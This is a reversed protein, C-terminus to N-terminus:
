SQEEEKLLDSFVEDHYLEHDRMRTFLERLEPDETERAIRSYEAAVKQEMKIDARLMDATKTSRDAETHEIRPSGGIDVM